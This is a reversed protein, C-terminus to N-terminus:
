TAKHRATSRPWRNARGDPRRGTRSPEDYSYHTPEEKFLWNM